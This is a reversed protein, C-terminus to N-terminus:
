GGRDFNQQAGHFAGGKMPKQSQKMRGYKVFLLNVLINGFPANGDVALGGCTVVDCTLYQNIAYKVIVDLM